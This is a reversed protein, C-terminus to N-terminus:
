AIHFVYETQRRVKISICALRVVIPIKATGKQYRHVQRESRGLAKAVAKWSKFECEERWTKFEHPSM